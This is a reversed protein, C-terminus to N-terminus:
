IYKRKWRDIVGRYGDGKRMVFPRIGIHFVICNWLSQWIYRKRRCIDKYFCEAKRCVKKVFIPNDLPNDGFGTKCIITGSIQAGSCSLLNDLIRGVTKGGYNEYTVVSMAYKGRLLQEIVFHGRDILTKMQGSVNAAYTPTGLILGDAGEIESSLKEIDDKYICKGTKYCTCCGICYKLNLDAVHVMKIEIETDKKLCSSIENLIAATAGNKRHSGNIMIIKM